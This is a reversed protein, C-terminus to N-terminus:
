SFLSCKNLYEYRKYSDDDSPSVLECKSFLFNPIKQTEKKLFQYYIVVPCLFFDM